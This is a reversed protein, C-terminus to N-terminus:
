QGELRSLALFRERAEALKENTVANVGMVLNHILQIEHVNFGGDGLETRWNGWTAPALPEVTEWELGETAKLSQLFIWNFRYSNYTAMAAKYDPDDFMQVPARGDKFITVPVKPQTVIGEFPSFDTVAQAWFIIDGSQRPLALFEKRPGKLTQGAYKM